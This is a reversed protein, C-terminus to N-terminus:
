SSCCLPLQDAAIHPIKKAYGPTRKTKKAEEIFTMDILDEKPDRNEM